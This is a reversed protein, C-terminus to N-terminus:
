LYYGPPLDMPCHVTFLALLSRIQRSKKIAFIKMRLEKYLGADAYLSVCDRMWHCVLMNKVELFILERLMQM